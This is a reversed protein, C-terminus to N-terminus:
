GGERDDAEESEIDAEIDFVGITSLSFARGSAGSIRVGSRFCWGEGNLKLREWDEGINPREAEGNKLWDRQFLLSSVNLCGRGVGDSPVSRHVNGSGASMIASRDNVIAVMRSSYRTVTWRTELGSADAM